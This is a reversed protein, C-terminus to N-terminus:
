AARRDKRKTTIIESMVRDVQTSLDELSGDNLLRHTVLTPEYRDFENVVMKGPRTVELVFGGRQLFLKGQLRRVSGFSIGSAGSHRRLAERLAWTPVSDEGFTREIARGYEGLVDRVMWTRGNILVSTKKGSQTYVQAQTLDFLNMCHQRIVEGDDFSVFGYKENMIEQVASKGSEPAGCIGVLLPNEGSEDEFM